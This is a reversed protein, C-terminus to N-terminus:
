LSNIALRAYVVHESKAKTERASIEIECKWHRDFYYYYSNFKERERERRKQTNRDKEKKTHRRM